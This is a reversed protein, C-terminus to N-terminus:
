RYAPHPEETPAFGRRLTNETITRPQCFQILYDPGGVKSGSGSLKYGGFPQSDVASGTVKRNIYLNGCECEARAREINAPSRSFVGGVLAYRSNNFIRVAEAFDKARLVALVPGFIEEQALASDPPVDVFVTPGVFHAGGTRETLERVDVELACRAEGRAAEIKALIAAQAQGDIVPPISTTPEEAPGVRATRTAEVLREVFRDFVADLVICRSAATCKQGAYGFASQVTAIVAEDLNADSDIITANKGGLELITRRISPRATPAAAARRNIELGVEASGTFAVTEVGPHEAIAPGLVRGPGPVFNLAGRPVGADHFVEVLHAGAVAAQTAPKFVVTNGTVLAAAIMGAPLALPFNWPGIVATVGRPEYGYENSEGATDRRRAHERLRLLEKGYYNCYDVAESVDADADRWTKGVELCILGALEFRRQQMLEAARFLCATRKAAGASRWADFADAAAAVARDLEPLGAAAVRGVIEQPRSPNHSESWNGTEVTEGAIRLPYARGADARAKALGAVMGRRNEELAFDTDAVNEFPDMIPSEFEFKFTVPEMPPPTRLGTEVPNELLRDRPADPDVSSRLFSENATNELLRRILYAMGPLLEGYPTYVRCREGMGGAAYKITDAMGYLMQLEFAWGPVGLLRKLAMAHALSRVNHSAFAGRVIRWNELMVRTLREYCADSEWKQRWVPCPWGRQEAWVTESDWYAGKVLRIWIPTGRERAWDIMAAMDADAERLYAQLVIGVHPYDRFEPELLLEQFARITLDKIAHHEMDVHLHAGCRMAARLLPRVRDKAASVSADLAIADLGSHICTLKVSVNVRPVAVGDATDALPAAPWRAAQASLDEILGLYISQYADCETRSVSSEGLLDITFALGDERMRRIATEAQRINTGAIFRRAMTTAAKWAGASLTRPWIGDFSDFDTAQALWQIWEPRRESRPRGNRAGLADAFYQKLHRAVDAPGHLAPLVDMFRFAQVKLREDAMFITMAREDWWAPQWVRPRRDHM